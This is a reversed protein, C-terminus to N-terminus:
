VAFCGVRIVKCARRMRPSPPPMHGGSKLLDTFGIEVLPCIIGVWYYTGGRIKLGQSPGAKSYNFKFIKGCKKAVHEGCLGCGLSHIPFGQKKQKQLQLQLDHIDSHIAQTTSNMLTEEYHYMELMEKLFEQVDGLTDSQYGPERLLKDM